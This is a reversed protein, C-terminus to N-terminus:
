QSQHWLVATPLAHYDLAQQRLVEEPTMQQSNDDSM